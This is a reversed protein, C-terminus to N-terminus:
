GVSGCLSRCNELEAMSPSCFIEVWAGACPAVQCNKQRVNRLNIEVWAGACPAVDRNKATTLAMVIEVWAGACPAVGQARSM